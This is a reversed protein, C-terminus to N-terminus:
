QNEVLVIGLENAIDLAKEYSPRADRLVLRGGGRNLSDVMSSVGDTEITIRQLQHEDAQLIEVEIGMKEVLKMVEKYMKYDATSAGFVAGMLIGPVNIGRRAFLEPYLEIKV